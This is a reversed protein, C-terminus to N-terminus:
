HYLLPRKLRDSEKCRFAGLPLVNYRQSNSDKIRASRQVLICRFESFGASFGAGGM